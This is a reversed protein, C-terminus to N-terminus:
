SPPDVRTAGTGTGTGSAGGGDAPGTVPGEDFHPRSRQDATTVAQGRDRPYDQRRENDRSDDRPHDQRREDYQDSARRQAARVDRISVVGLRGLATAAFFLILAGLGTFLLLTELAMALKSTSIPQGITGLHLLSRLTPGVIFWAGGAVGLWAGFSATIRNAATLLLLGGVATVAGPLIELWFRGITFHWTSNPTYGFDVIPGLLPILAGWLGLALLLLGSVAGRSRPVRFRAGRVASDDIPDNKAM